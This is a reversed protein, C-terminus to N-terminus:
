MDAARRLYVCSHSPAHIGIDSDLDSIMYMESGEKEFGGKLRWGGLEMRKMGGMWGRWEGGGGGCGRDGLEGM